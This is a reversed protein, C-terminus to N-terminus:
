IQISLRVYEPLVCACPVHEYPLHTACTVYRSLVKCKSDRRCPPNSGASIQIAVALRIEHPLIRTGAVDDVPQHVARLVAAATGDRIAHWRIPLNLARGIEISIMFR